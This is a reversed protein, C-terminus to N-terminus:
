LSKIVVLTMDDDSTDTRQFAVVQARIAQTIEQATKDRTEKLAQAASDFAFLVGGLTLVLGRVTQKADLADANRIAREVAGRTVATQVRARDVYASAKGSLEQAEGHTLAVKAYMGGMAAQHDIFSQDGNRQYEQEAAIIRREAERMDISDAAVNGSDTAAQLHARAENISTKDRTACATGFALALVCCAAVAAWSSDRIGRM